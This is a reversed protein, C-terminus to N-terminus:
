GLMMINVQFIVESELKKQEKATTSCTINVSRVAPRHVVHTGSPQNQAPPELFIFCSTSVAALKIIEVRLDM